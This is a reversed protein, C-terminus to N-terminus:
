RAPGDVPTGADKRADPVGMVTPDGDMAVARGFRDAADGEAAFLEDLHTWRGLGRRFVYAKGADPEIEDNRMAGVFPFGQSSMRPCTKLVSELLARTVCGPLPLLPFASEM